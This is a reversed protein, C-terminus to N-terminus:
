FILRGIVDMTFSTSRSLRYLSGLGQVKNALNTESNKIKHGEDLVCYTWRHTKFWGDEVAYTDYTTLVIDFNRDSRFTNKFRDRENGTGHFRIVRM